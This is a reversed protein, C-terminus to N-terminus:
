CSPTTPPHPFGSPPCKIHGRLQALSERAAFNLATGFSNGFTNSLAVIGWQRVRDLAMYPTYGPLGGDKDYYVNSQIRGSVIGGIQWGLGMHLHNHASHPALAVIIAKELDQNKTLGMHADLFYLM